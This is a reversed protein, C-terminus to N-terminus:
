AGCTFRMHDLVMRDGSRCPQYRALQELRVPFTECSAVINQIKFDLFRVPLGLKQMIRFFRWAAM